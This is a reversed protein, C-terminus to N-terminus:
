QTLKVRCAGNIRFKRGSDLECCLIYTRLRKLRKFERHRFNFCSGDPLESLEPLGSAEEPQYYKRLVRHSFTTATPNQFYVRLDNQWNEPFANVFRSFYLDRFAYKWEKGHPNVKTGYELWTLHHAFEHIWVLLAVFPKLDKNLTIHASKEFESKPRYDGLKTRRSGVWNTVVWPYALQLDRIENQVDDAFEEFWTGRNNRM